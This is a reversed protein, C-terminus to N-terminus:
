FKRTGELSILHADYDGYEANSNAAYHSFRYEAKLTTDERPGWQLGATLDVRENEVGLPLGTGAFDNFNDAWSYLLSGSISWSPGLFAHASGLLSNVDAHFDPINASAALRAPTSTAAMQRSFSATLLFDSRPQATADVTVTHSAVRTKVFPENEVRTGYEEQRFQYRVSPLFWRCPKWGLRTAFEDTHVRQEDMFASRATTGTSDSERQDDYDNRDFRRRLHATWDLSPCPSARGGLTAAGRLVDTITARNFTEGANAGLLDKRDERMDVRGEELELEAYLAARPIKTMRVSLAQGWRRAKNENLSVVRQDIVGNPTSGGASNPSADAPYSSSSERRILEAKIRGVVQLWSLPDAALSGVWTHTDFDNDARADRIQKPNSFNTPTGGANTEIISEFERSDMHAFRYGTSLFLRNNLFRREAGLTSTMRDAQPAQDQRRIKQDAAASTTSLSREERMMESRVFEWRQEGKLSFGAVEHGVQLAFSEVTEDLDQWSPGISRTEGSDKVATWTLRSKAGDKTRREFLFDLEPWGELALGTSFGIRGIDLALDRDTENAQLASFRRHVGGTGDYYKRFESFDLSAFGLGEKRLDVRAGLDNQDILAHGRAQVSAGNGLRRSWVAERIGGVAGDKMWHHARFKEADGSVGAYRAPLLRVSLEEEAQASVAGGAAVFLALLLLVRTVKIGCTTM